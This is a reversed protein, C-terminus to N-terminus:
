VLDMKNKNIIKYNNIIIDDYFIGYLAMNTSLFLMVISYYYDLLSFNNLSLKTYFAAHRGGHSPTILRRRPSKSALMLSM